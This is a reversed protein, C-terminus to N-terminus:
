LCVGVLKFHLKIMQKLAKFGWEGKTEELELVQFYIYWHLVTNSLTCFFFFALVKEFSQLAAVPNEEKLGKSGYYQNEL